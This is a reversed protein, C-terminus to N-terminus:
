TRGARALEARLVAAPIPERSHASYLLTAGANLLRRWSAYVTERSDGFFPVYSSGSILPFKACLDGVFAEGNDLLLSLSGDTHGPTHLARGKVGYDALSLEDDVVVDPKCANGSAAKAFPGMLASLIKGATTIGHPHLARGSALIPAESSHALVPARSREAVAKLSGMHDGHAHTILILRISEPPLGNEAMAAFIRGEQGPVGADVLVCGGEAPVLYVGVFGLPVLVPKELTEMLYGM